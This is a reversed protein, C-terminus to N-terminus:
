LRRPQQADSTTPEPQLLRHWALTTLPGQKAGWARAHRCTRGPTRQRSCLPLVLSSGRKGGRQAPRNRHSGPRRSLRACRGCSPRGLAKASSSVRIAPGDSPGLPPTASLRSSALAANRAAHFRGSEGSFASSFHEPQAKRNIGMGSAAM